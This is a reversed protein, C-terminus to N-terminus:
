GFLQKLWDTCLKIWGAVHPSIHSASKVATEEPNEGGIFATWNGSYGLEAAAIQCKEDAGQLGELDGTFQEKTIFVRRIDPIDSAMFPWNSQISLEDCSALAPFTVSFSGKSYSILNGTRWPYEVIAIWFNPGYAHGSPIKWEYKESSAPINEAIWQPNEGNFLVIGIREVGKAKWTIDYSQGIEWEERGMPSVLDLNRSKDGYFMFLIAAVVGVIAIIIVIFMVKEIGIKEPLLQNM